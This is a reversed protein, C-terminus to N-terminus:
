APRELLRRAAAYMALLFVLYVAIGELRHIRDPDLWRWSSDRLQMAIAIRVTNVAITAAYAAAAAGAVLACRGLATRRTHMFGFVASCLAIILFNVGACPAAIVYHAERSVYGVGAEAAFPAGTIAEVGAATPALVWRLEDPSAVSYHRKLAAAAVLTVAFLAWTQWRDSM